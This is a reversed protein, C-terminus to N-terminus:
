FKVKTSDAPVENEDINDETLVGETEANDKDEEKITVYRKVKSQDPNFVLNWTPRNNEPNATANLNGFVSFSKEKATAVNFTLGGSMRDGNQWFAGVELMRWIVKGDETKPSNDNPRKYIRWDPANENRTEQDGNEFVLIDVKKQQPTGLKFGFYGSFGTNGIWLAGCQYKRWDIKEKKPQDQNAETFDDLDVNYNEM